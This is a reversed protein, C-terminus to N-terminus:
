SVPRRSDQWGHLRALRRGLRGWTAGLAVWEQRALCAEVDEAVRDLQMLGLRRAVRRLWRLRRAFGELDRRAYLGRLEDHTLVLEDLARGLLLREAPGAEGMVEKLLDHTLADDGEPPCLYTIGTSVGSRGTQWSGLRPPM